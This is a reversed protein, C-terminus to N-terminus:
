SAYKDLESVMQWRMTHMKAQSNASYGVLMDFPIDWHLLDFFKNKTVRVVTGSYVVDFIRPMQDMCNIVLWCEIPGKCGTLHESDKYVAEGLVDIDLLGMRFHGQNDNYKNTKDIINKYPVVDWEHALPGAGHRTAYPRTCYYVELSVSNNIENIIKMANYIGTRSRTVYPFPGNFEDLLLGQAGEFVVNDFKNLIANDCLEVRSLMWRFADYTDALFVDFNVSDLVERMQEYPIGIEYMRTPLYNEWIDYLIEKTSRWDAISSVTMKHETNLHRTIAENFGIGCSGNRKDGLMKESTVNVITDLFTNVICDKHIYTRPSIGKVGLAKYEKRFLYPNVVFKPGLYTPIETLSGSGFHAFVHRNYERNVTHGAQAGGNFRVIINAWEDSLYDVTKGKGEDGNGAGIVIKANKM